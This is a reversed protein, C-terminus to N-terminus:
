CSERRGENNESAQGSSGVHVSSIEHNPGEQPVVVNLDNRRVEQDGRHNRKKDVDAAERDRCGALRVRIQSLQRRSAVRAIRQVVEEDAAFQVRTNAQGNREYILCRACNIDLHKHFHSRAQQSPGYQVQGIHGMLVSGVAMHGIRDDQNGDELSEVNQVCQVHLRSDHSSHVDDHVSKAEHQGKAVHDPDGVQVTDLAAIEGDEWKLQSPSSHRKDHTNGSDSVGDEAAGVVLLVSEAGVGVVGADLVDLVDLGGAARPQHGRSPPAQRTM